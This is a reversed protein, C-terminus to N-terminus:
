EVFEGRDECISAHRFSSYDLRFVDVLKESRMATTSGGCGLATPPEQIKLEPIANKDIALARRKSAV